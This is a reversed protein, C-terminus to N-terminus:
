EALTGFSALAVDHYELVVTLVARLRM